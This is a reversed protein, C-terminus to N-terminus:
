REEGPKVSATVTVHDGVEIDSEKDVYFYMHESTVGSVARVQVSNEDEDSPRVDDVTWDLNLKM